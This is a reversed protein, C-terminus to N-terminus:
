VPEGSILWAGIGAAVGVGLVVMGVWPILQVLVLATLGLLFAAQLSRSGPLLGGLAAAVPVPAVMVAVFLLGLAALVVPVLVLALPLGAEPPSVSVVLAVLGGLLAPAAMVGLGWGFSALPRRTAAIVAGESRHPTAWIVTLGLIAAGAVALVRVLLFMGRVRVNTPLPKRHILAGEVTSAQDISADRESRYALDGGVRASGGIVLDRVTVEVNRAVSGDFTTSRQQGEFDRGIEGSVAARWSWALLDRGISSGPDTRVERAGAFVDGGVIGEIIVSSAAARVSGGVEGAIVVKGTLAVVDGTVTGTVRIEKYAVAFLDGEVRGDVQVVNGAAYLDEKVVDEQRILVLNSQVREARAPAAPFLVLGLAVLLLGAVAASSRSHM